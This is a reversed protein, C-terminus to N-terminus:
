GVLGAVFLLAFGAAVCLAGARGAWSYETADDPAVDVTWTDRDREYEVYSPTQFFELFLLAGGLAGLASGALRLTVGVAVM